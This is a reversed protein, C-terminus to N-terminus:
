SADEENSFDIELGRKKGTEDASLASQSHTYPLRPRKFEAARVALLLVVREHVFLFDIADDICLLYLMGYREGACVARAFQATHRHNVSGLGCHARSVM